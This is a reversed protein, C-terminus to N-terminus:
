IRIYKRNANVCSHFKYGPWFCNASNSSTQNTLLFEPMETQNDISNKLLSQYLRFQPDTFNTWNDGYGEGPNIIAVASPNIKHSYYIAEFTACAEAGVHLLSFRKCKDYLKGTRQPNLEYVAWIAFSRFNHCNFKEIIFRHNLREKEHNNLSFNEPIFGNPTLEEKSIHKIGILDFGVGDFHYRMGNEVVNLPTSYDVHLYSCFDPSLCKIDSADLGAAPYFVSDKLLEKIDFMSSFNDSTMQDLYTM